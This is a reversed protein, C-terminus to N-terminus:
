VCNFDDDSKVNRHAVGAPIVIVDGKGLRVSEGEPGGLQITVKGDYVGLVEHTISHYHHYDYIGDRWSNKWNNNKFLKRLQKGAKKEKDHLEAVNRYILVPLRENNPFAGQGKVLLTKVKKVTVEIM